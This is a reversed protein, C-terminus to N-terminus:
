LLHPPSPFLQQQRQLWHLHFLQPPLPLHIKFSLLLLMPNNTPPHLTPLPRSLQLKLLPMKTRTPTPKLLLKPQLSLMPQATTVAVMGMEVAMLLQLLLMGRNIRIRVRIGRPRPRLTMQSARIQHTQNTPNPPTSRPMTTQLLSQLPIQLPLPPHNAEM